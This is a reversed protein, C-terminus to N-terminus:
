ECLLAIQRESETVGAQVDVRSYLNGAEQWLSIATEKEGTAAKLLAFGRLTNALDLTDTGPHRRYIELAEAYGTAAENLRNSERLIDGIHRITHALSLPDDVARYISVAEEYHALSVEIEGLDRESAGLRTLSQALLAQNGQSRCLSVAEAYLLKADNYRYDRRAQYGQKLLSEANSTM